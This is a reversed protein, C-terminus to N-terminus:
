EAITLDVAVENWKMCDNINFSTRFVKVLSRGTARSLLKSSKMMGSQFFDVCTTWFPDPFELLSQKRQHWAHRAVLQSLVQTQGTGRDVWGRGEGRRSRGWVADGGTALLHCYYSIISIWLDLSGFYPSYKRQLALIAKNKPSYKYVMNDPFFVTPKSCFYLADLTESEISTAILGHPTTFVDSAPCLYTSFRKLSEGRSWVM